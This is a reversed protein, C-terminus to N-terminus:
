ASTQEEAKAVLEEATGGTQRYAEVAAKVMDRGKETADMILDLGGVNDGDRMMQKGDRKAAILLARAERKANVLVAPEPRWITTDPKKYSGLTMTPTSSGVEEVASAMMNVTAGVLEGTERNVLMNSLESVRMYNMEHYAGSGFLTEVRASFPEGEAPLIAFDDCYVDYTLAVDWLADNRRMNGQTSCSSYENPTVSYTLTITRTDEEKVWAPADIDIASLEVCVQDSMDPESLPPEAVVADGRTLPGDGVFTGVHTIPLNGEPTWTIAQQTIFCQGSLGVAGDISGLFAVVDGPWYDPTHGYSNYTGNWDLIGKRRQRGGKGSGAHVFEQLNATSTVSFQQFQSVGELLGGIGAIVGM